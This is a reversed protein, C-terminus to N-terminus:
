GMIQRILPQFGSAHGAKTPHYVDEVSWAYKGVLYPTTACVDHGTFQTIVSTYTLGNVRAREGIVRDLHDSVGNLADREAASIGNAQACSINSGFARPYGVQIVTANPAAAKIKAHTADLKAPLENDIKANVTAAASLCSAEDGSNWCSLILNVFGVDNGGISLTVWRTGASLAPVQETNVDGTQAGGCAVFKLSTNARAAAILPGYASSSRYCWYDLDRNGTGNGSAYSDGMAVYEETQAAHAPLALSLAALAIPLAAARLRNLPRSM